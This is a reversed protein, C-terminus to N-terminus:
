DLTMQSGRLSTYQWLFKLAIRGNYIHCCGMKLDITGIINVPHDMIIRISVNITPQVQICKVSHTLDLLDFVKKILYLQCLYFTDGKLPRIEVGLYKEIDCEDTLPFHKPGTRLLIELDEITQSDKSFIVCDYFYVFFDYKRLFM